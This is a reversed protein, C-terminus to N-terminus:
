PSIVLDIRKYSGSHQSNPGSCIVVSPFLLPLFANGLLPWLICFSLDYHYHLCWLLVSFWLDDNCGWRFVTAYEAGSVYHETQLICCSPYAWFVILVLLSCTLLHVCLTVNMAGPLWPIFCHSKAIVEMRIVFLSQFKSECGVIIQWIWSPPTFGQSLSLVSGTFFDALITTENWVQRSRNRGM